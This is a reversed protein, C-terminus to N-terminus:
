LLLALATSDVHVFSGEASADECLHKQGLIFQTFLLLLLFFSLLVKM